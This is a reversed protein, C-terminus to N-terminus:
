HPHQTALLAQSLEQNDIPKNTPQRAGHLLAATIKRIQDAMAEQKARENIRFQASAVLQETTPMTQPQLRPDIPSYPAPIGLM